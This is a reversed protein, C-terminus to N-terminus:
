VWPNTTAGHDGQCHVFASKLDQTEIATAKREAAILVAETLLRKVRRPSGGSALFLLKMQESTQLLRLDFWDCAKAFGHLLGAWQVDREFLRLEIRGTIRDSLHRDIDELGDLDTTGGLVLGVNTQDMLERLFITAEPENVHAGRRRTQHILNQAEDVFVMRTGKARILEFAHEKRLYVASSTTQIPYNYLRLLGAVFQGATPRSGARLNVCAFGPVFLTSSPLSTSFYNLLATKGAGTPGVIRLGHPMKVDRALQFIRDLARLGSSFRDHLVFLGDVKIGAKLAETSYTQIRRQHIEKEVAEEDFYEPTSDFRAKNSM